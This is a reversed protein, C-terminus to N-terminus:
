TRTIADGAGLIDGAILFPNRLAALSMVKERFHDRALFNM